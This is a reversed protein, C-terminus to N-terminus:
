RERRGGPSSGSRRVIGCRRKSCVGSSGRNRGCARCSARHECLLSMANGILNTTTENVAIMLLLTMSLVEDANLMEQEVEARVLDSILDERPARRRAGIMQRFYDLFQGRSELLRDVEREDLDEFRSGKLIDDSWRKFDARRATDVGLMESIVIVPLPIALADMLDFARRGGIEDILGSALARIRGELLAVARPAFAANILKRLRTHVPPDSSVMSTEGLFENDEALREHRVSRRMEALQFSSFVEPTKLAYQVDEYRSLAWWGLPGVKCVPTKVRLEAYVSYPDELMRPSFIDIAYRM